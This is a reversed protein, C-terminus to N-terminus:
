QHSKAANKHSSQKTKGTFGTKKRCIVFTVISSMSPATHMLGSSTIRCDFCRILGARMRGHRFSLRPHPLGMALLSGNDIQCYSGYVIGLKLGLAFGETKGRM